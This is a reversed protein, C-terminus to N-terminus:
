MHGSGHGGLRPSHVVQWSCKWGEFLVSEESTESESQSSKSTRVGLREGRRVFGLGSTNCCVAVVVVFVVPPLLSFLTEGTGTVGENELGNVGVLDGWRAIPM